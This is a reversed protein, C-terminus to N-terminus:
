GSTASPSMGNAALLRPVGGGDAPVAYVDSGPDDDHPVAYMVTRADLWAAQDDVSRTEALPTEQMTALNLVTFRWPRRIDDSVRKKFVLRTGDPSLSPCELNERLATLTHARFDGRVLWTKRSSGMTAYFTNDDATFTVGWYNVDVAKYPRGDVTATFTEVSDLYEGTKGDLISTRTSAGPQTYSDGTVFTTWSAMRGDASLRARNPTGTIQLKKTQKLSSDYIEAYPQSILDGESQLCLLVGSATYSRECAVSSVTPVTAQAAGAPLEVVKGFDPGQVTSRYTLRGAALTFGGVVGAHQKSRGLFATLGAAVAVAALVAISSILIRARNDAM